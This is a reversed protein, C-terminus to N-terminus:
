LKITNFSNGKISTCIIRNDIKIKFDRDEGNGNYIVLIIKGDPNKFALVDDYGSCDIRYAGIEVFHSLHKMLFYEPNYIVKGDKKNITIMSNQVWGWYSVGPNTLIFNWYVYSEAGNNIYRKMLNWTHLASSWNNEGGGCENETQMLHLDPFEKHITEIANKGDWQFGLGKVYKKLNKNEFARRVYNPDGVNLTSFWINVDRKEKEFRPGLYNTVFLALDQPEWICSPFIQEAVVENQVHLDTVNIGESIYADLFKSFYLAYADLYGRLMKFGTTGTVSQKHPNLNNYKANEISAYHENTKMWSPPCWPSAFFRMEKNYSQAKKIYPILCNKDRAISFNTMTFDDKTENFSYFGSAYDSAGIPFRNYCFNAGDPSFLEKYIAEQRTPSLLKLAEWGAENFCGGFGNMKQYKRNTDVEINVIAGGHSKVLKKEIKWPENETTSVWELRQARIAVVTLLFIGLFIQKKMYYM